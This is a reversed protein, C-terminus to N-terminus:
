SHMSIGLEVFDTHPLQCVPLIQRNAFAQNSNQSLIDLNSLKIFTIHIIFIFYIKM